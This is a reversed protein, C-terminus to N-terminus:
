KNRADKLQQEMIKNYEVFSTNKIYLPRMDNTDIKKGNIDLALNGIRYEVGNLYSLNKDVDINGVFTENEKIGVYKM